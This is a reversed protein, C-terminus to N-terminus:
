YRYKLGLSTSRVPDRAGGANPFETSDWQLTASLSPTFDFSLGAGFSLGFGRDNGSALRAASLASPEGRGYTTGFKGYLGISPALQTKGLLSLTLGERADGAMRPGRATNQYAMEVGWFNGLMTGTYFQTSRYSDECTLATSSCAVNSRARGLNLGIYSRNGPLWVGQPPPATVPTTAATSPAGPLVQAQAPLWFLATGASTLCLLNRLARM